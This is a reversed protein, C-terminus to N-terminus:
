LARIRGEHIFVIVKNPADDFQVFYGYGLGPEPGLSGIVTGQAGDMHGDDGVSHIKEIRTGAPLAGDAQNNVLAEAVPVPLAGMRFERFTVVRPNPM